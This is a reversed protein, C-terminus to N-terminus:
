PSHRAATSRCTPRYRPARAPARSCPAARTSWASRRRPRPRSRASRPWSFWRRPWLDPSIRPATVQEADDFGGAVGRAQEPAAQNREVSVRQRPQDAGAAPVKRGAGVIGVLRDVTEAQPRASPHRQRAQQAAVRPSRGTEIKDRLSQRRPRAPIQWPAIPSPTAHVVVRRSGSCAAPPCGDGGRSPSVSRIHSRRATRM